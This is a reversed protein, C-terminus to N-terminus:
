TPFTRYYSASPAGQSQYYVHPQYHSHSYMPQSLPAPPPYSNYMVPTYPPFSAHPPPAPLPLSAPPPLPTPPPLAPTPPPLTPLPLQTPPPEAKIRARSNAAASRADPKARKGSQEGAGYPDSNGPRKRNPEGIHQATLASDVKGRKKGRKEGMRAATEPWTHQNPAINEKEPLRSSDDTATASHVLARLRSRIVDLSKVMGPDRPAKATLQQLLSMMENATSLVSANDDAAGHGVSQGPSNHDDSESASDSGNGPPQPGLDAGGFFHVVAAIHKCLSINPFDKCNCIMTSLDIQYCELSRSSQVEFHLDDIKKIKEVPTEPARMLIQRRRKEALNLGEMGLTQRKHRHELDPLYEKVLMHILHDM